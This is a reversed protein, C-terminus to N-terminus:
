SKKERKQAKRLKERDKESKTQKQKDIRCKTETKRETDPQKQFNAIDCPM